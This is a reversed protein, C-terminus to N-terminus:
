RSGGRTISYQTGRVQESETGQGAGKGSEMM